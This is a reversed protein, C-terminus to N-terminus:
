WKYNPKEENFWKYRLYDDILICLGSLLVWALSFFLNIQGGCASLPLNSYDWINLQQIINWKYGFIAEILTVSISGIICQLIFSINYSFINNILGIWLGMLGGLIFMRYDTISHKFLCEIVFYICAYVFFLILNKIIIKIM